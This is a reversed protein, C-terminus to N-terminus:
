SNNYFKAFKTKYGMWDDLTFSCLSGVILCGLLVTVKM